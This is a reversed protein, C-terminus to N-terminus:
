STEAQVATFLKQKIGYVATHNTIFTDPKFDETLIFRLMKDNPTLLLSQSADVFVNKINDYIVGKLLADPTNLLNTDCVFMNDPLGGLVAFYCMVALMKDIPPNDKKSAEICLGYLKENISKVDIETGLATGLATIDSVNDSITIKANANADDKTFIAIFKDVATDGGRMQKTYKGGKKGGKVNAMSNELAALDFLRATASAASSDDHKSSLVM